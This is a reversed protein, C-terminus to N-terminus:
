HQLSGVLELIWSLATVAPFHPICIRVLCVALQRLLM